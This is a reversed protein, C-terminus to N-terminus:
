AIKKRGFGLHYHVVAIHPNSRVASEFEAIAASTKVPGSSSPTLLKIGQNNHVAVEGLEAENLLRLGPLEARHRYRRRKLWLSALALILVAVVVSVIVAVILILTRMM